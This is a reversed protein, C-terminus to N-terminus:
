TKKCQSIFIVLVFPLMTHLGYAYRFENFVPTAVLLTAVLCLAFSPEIFSKNKKLIGFSFLIIFIWTCLGSAVFINLINSFGLRGILYDIKSNLSEYNNTRYIGYNNESIENIAVWYKYGGNWYGKTQDVWSRLYATPNQVGISIWQSLFENLNSDIIINANNVRALDKIPDSIYYDHLEKTKDLDLITKLYNTNEATLEGDDSIVRAIQQLPISLKEVTDPQGVGLTDLVPGTMIYGIFLSLVATIIIKRQNKLFTFFLLLVFPFYAFLGNSRLICVGISSLLFLLNNILENGIQNRFRFLTTVMLLCLGGFIVDKWVTCSFLIHYPMFIYILSVLIIYKRRINAQYLTMISYSFISSMIVIQAINYIAISANSSNFLQFGIGGFLKILMTHYFPQYNSYIGSKIQSIQLLSDPSVNGPYAILLLYTLNTVIILFFPILFYVSKINNPRKKENEISVTNFLIYLYSVVKSFVFIGLLFNFIIDFINWSNSITLNINALVVLFSLFCSTFGIIYYEEKNIKFDTVHNISFVAIFACLVYVIFIAETKYLMMVWVLIAILQNVKIEIM